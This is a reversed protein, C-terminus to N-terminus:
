RGQGVYPKDQRSNRGHGISTKKFKSRSPRKSKVQTLKAM